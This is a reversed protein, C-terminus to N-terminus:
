RTKTKRSAAAGLAKIKASLEKERKEATKLADEDFLPVLIHKRAEKYSTIAATRYRPDKTLKWTQASVDGMLTNIGVLRDDREDDDPLATKLEQLNASSRSLRAADPLLASWETLAQAQKFRADYWGHVPEDRRWVKLAEDFHRVAEGFHDGNRTMRGLALFTMGWNQHTLAWSLPEAERSILKLAEEYYRGAAALHGPDASLIGLQYTINGLNYRYLSKHRDNEDPSIEIVQEARQKAERLMDLNGQESGSSALASALNALVIRKNEGDLAAGQDLLERYIAIADDPNQLLLLTALGSKAGIWDQSGVKEEAISREFAAKAKAFNEPSRNLNWSATLVIALQHNVARKLVPYRDIASSSSAKELARQADRFYDRRTHEDGGNVLERVQSLTYNISLEPDGEALLSAAQYLAAAEVTQFQLSATLAQLATLEAAERRADMGKEIESQIKARAEAFKGADILATASERLARLKPYRDSVEELQKQLQLHKRAFEVLKEGIGESPVNKEGILNLAATIQAENLSLKERLLGILQEQEATRKDSAIGAIQKLEALQAPTLGTSIPSNTVNGQIVVANEGARIDQASVRGLLALELALELALAAAM